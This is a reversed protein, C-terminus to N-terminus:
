RVNEQASGCYINLVTIASLNPPLGLGSYKSICAGEALSCVFLIGIFGETEVALFPVFVLVCCTHQESLLTEGPGLLQCLWCQSCLFVNACIQPPWLEGNSHPAFIEGERWCLPRRKGHFLFGGFSFFSFLLIYFSFFPVFDGITQSFLMRSGQDIGLRSVVVLAEHLCPSVRRTHFFIAIDPLFLQVRSNLPSLLGVEQTLEGLGHQRRDVKLDPSSSYSFLLCSALAASSLM